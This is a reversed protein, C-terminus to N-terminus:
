FPSFIISRTIIHWHKTIIVIICDCITCITYPIEVHQLDNKPFFSIICCYAYYYSINSRRAFNPFSNASQSSKVCTTFFTNILIVSSHNVEVHWLFRESKVSISNANKQRRFAGFLSNLYQILFAAPGFQNPYSGFNCLKISWLRSNEQKLTCIPCLKNIWAWAVRLKGFSYWM